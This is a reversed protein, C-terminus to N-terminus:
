LEETDTAVRWVGVVQEHAVIHITSVVGDLGDGQQDGQLETIAITDGDESAVMLGPLDGLHISKVVFAQSFVAICINPPEEGIQEVEQGQGSENIVLHTDWAGKSREDARPNNITIAGRQVGIGLQGTAGYINQKCPPSDGDM